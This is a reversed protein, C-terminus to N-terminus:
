AQEPRDVASDPDAVVPREPALGEPLVDGRQPFLVEFRETVVLLDETFEADLEALVRRWYKEHEVRWSVLSRDDEGEAAAHEAGIEDFPVTAVETTRVLARPHGEGDLVISLDGKLPVPEEAREFEILATSTATKTGDLVLALLQDALEPSDGFYWSQPVITGTVGPGTVVSTRVLGALHRTDEWFRLVEAANREESLDEPFSTGLEPDDFFDAATLDDEDDQEPTGDVDAAPTVPEGASQTQEAPGNAVPTRETPEPTSPDDTARDDHDTM